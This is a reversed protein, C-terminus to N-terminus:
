SVDRTASRDSKMPPHLIEWCLRDLDERSLRPDIFFSDDFSSGVPQRNRASAGSFGPLAHIARKINENGDVANCFWALYSRDQRFIESIPEGRHKGFPMRQEDPNITM